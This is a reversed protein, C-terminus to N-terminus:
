DVAGLFNLWAHCIKGGKGIMAEKLDFQERDTSYM